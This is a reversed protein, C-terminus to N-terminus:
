TVDIKLGVSVRSDDMSSGDGRSDPVPAARTTRWDAGIVGGRVTLVVALSVLAAVFQGM